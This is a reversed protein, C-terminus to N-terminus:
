ICTSWLKTDSPIHLYFIPGCIPLQRALLPTRINGGRCIGMNTVRVNGSPVFYNGVDVFNALYRLFLPVMRDWVRHFPITGFFYADQALFTM